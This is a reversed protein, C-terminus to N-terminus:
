ASTERRGLRSRELVFWIISLIALIAGFYKIYRGPDRNVSLVTTAVKGPDNAFSAQYFTFGGRKLPQNMAIRGSDLPKGASDVVHVDSTYSAAQSTGPDNGVRFKDLRIGFPLSVRRGEFSLARRLGLENWTFVGNLPVWRSPGWPGASVRVAPQPLDRGPQPDVPVCSDRLSGRPEFAGVSLHLVGFPLPIDQGLAVRFASLIRGGKECRALLTDGAAGLRLLPTQSAGGEPRFLVKWAVEPHRDGSFRFDPVRGYLIEDWSSDQRHVRLRVAPNKLTDSLNTLGAAGIQANPLFEQVQVSIAGARFTKGATSLDALSLHLSDPGSRATLQFKAPMRASTDLFAAASPTRELSLAMLGLDERPSVLPNDLGLRLTTPDSGVALLALEVLPGGQTDPVVRQYTRSFPIAEVIRPAPAPMGPVAGLDGERRWLTRKVQTEAVLQENVYTRVVTEPLRLARSAGGEPIEMSGDIGGFQTTVSGILVLLIGLHICAFPYQSRRLPWRVVVALLVNFFLFVLVLHFWWQDYVVLRAMDGNYRSEVITGVALIAALSGMTIVALRVSAMFRVVPNAQLVELNRQAWDKVNM